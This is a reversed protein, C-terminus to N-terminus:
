YVMGINSQYSHNCYMNEEITQLNYGRPKILGRDVFSQSDKISEEYGRVSAPLDSKQKVVDDLVKALEDEIRDM